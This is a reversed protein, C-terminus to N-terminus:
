SSLFRCLLKTWARVVMLVGELLSAQWVCTSKVASLATWHAINVLRNFLCHIIWTYACIILLSAYFFSETFDCQTCTFAPFSLIKRNVM